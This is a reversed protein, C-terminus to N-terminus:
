KEGKKQKILKIAEELMIEGAEPAMRSSAAFTTEYGGRLFAEKTPVYGVMGNATAVALAHRPYAAEKLRLAFEVFYEAPFAAIDINGISLVQIEAPQSKRKEIRELLAPMGRDYIASDIFRQAGRIKGEVEGNTYRRYSLQVTESSASLIWDTVFNMNSIANLADKAIKNGAEEMTMGGGTAPNSTHVNGSPGNLFLAVPWGNAKMERVFVGPYGASIVEEGGFHTPHCSFNVICGIPSGNKERVAIVAVEPDIPGEIFLANSDKFTGHTKVTGDRMVVRRNHAVEFEFVHNFGIEAEVMNKIALGFADKVRSVMWQLYKEDRPVDGVNAVAPGAHNHTASVMVNNAPVGYKENISKRIEQTTTWRVCLTDLQVFAICIGNNELVAIRAFIPDAIQKAVIKRLWGIKLTGPEPTIDIESFGAKM